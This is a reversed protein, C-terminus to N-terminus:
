DFLLFWNRFFPKNRHKIISYDDITWKNFFQIEDNVRVGYNKYDFNGWFKFFRFFLLGLNVSGFIEELLIKNSIKLDQFYIYVLNFIMYSSLGGKSAENLNNIKLIKKIM